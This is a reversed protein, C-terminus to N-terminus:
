VHVQESSAAPSIHTPPSKAARAGSKAALHTRLKLRDDRRRLAAQVCLVTVVCVCVYM